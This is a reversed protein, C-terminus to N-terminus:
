YVACVELHYDHYCCGHMKSIDRMYHCLVHPYIYGEIKIKFTMNLVTLTVFDLYIIM